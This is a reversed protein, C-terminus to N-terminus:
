LRNAILREIVGRPTGTLRNLQRISIGKQHLLILNKNRDALSLKQFDIVSDCSCIDQILEKAVDDPIRVRTKHIDLCDEIPYNEHFESFNEYSGFVDLIFEKNVFGVTKGLYEQYSSWPYDSGPTKELGAKVPNYHIYRVVNKLYSSTEVPESYFRGDQLYGNRSYKMNFWGAYKTNIRQFISSINTNEKHHILLHVHNSMLCYAYIDFDLAEKYDEIIELYKKFDRQHEFFLQNDAGKIVVHYTCTSSIRRAHRPM